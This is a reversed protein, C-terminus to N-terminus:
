FMGTLADRCQEQEGPEMMKGGLCITLFLKMVLLHIAILLVGASNM